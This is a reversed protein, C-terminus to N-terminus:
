EKKKLKPWVKLFIQLSAGYYTLHTEYQCHERYFEGNIDNAQHHILDDPHIRGGYRINYKKAVGGNILLRRINPYEESVAEYELILVRKDDKISKLRLNELETLSELRNVEPFAERSNERIGERFHALKTEIKTM